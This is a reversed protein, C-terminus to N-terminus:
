DSEPNAPDSDWEQVHGKMQSYPHQAHLNAFKLWELYTIFTPIELQWM